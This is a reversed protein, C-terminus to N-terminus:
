DKKEKEDKAAEKKDAGGKAEPAQKSAKLVDDAPLIISTMGDPRGNNMSMGGGKASITRMVFVGLVKGDLGFAPSGLGTSTMNSDPIYFTRPKQIVANIREVSASYARGAAKGLRNLTIVQDLVDAKTGNGFDVAAMPSAPKSKPRIFALDLDKDRLVVEAPLETGDDLLIKVDTLETEMKFRNDEDQMMSAYMATPDCASLALVTLGSADVVTGTLDQKMERPNGGAGPMSITMKQVVQVTVIARQNKKFVDRGKEALEDARCVGASLVVALALAFKIKSNM